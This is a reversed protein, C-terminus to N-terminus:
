GRKHPYSALADCHPCTRVEHIRQLDQHDLTEPPGPVFGVGGCRCAYWGLEVEQFPVAPARLDVEEVDMRWRANTFLRRCGAVRLKDAYLTYHSCHRMLLVAATVDTPFPLTYANGLLLTLNPLPDSLARSVLGAQRELAYVFRVRKAMRKALRLDGAGIELVVDDPHLRELVSRYTGEDYPSWM